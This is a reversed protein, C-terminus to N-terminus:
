STSRSPFDVNLGIGYQDHILFLVCCFVTLCFNYLVFRNGEISFSFRVSLMFKDPWGFFSEFYVIFWTKLRWSGRSVMGRDSISISFLKKGFVSFIVSSTSLFSWFRSATIRCDFDKCLYLVLGILASIMIRPFLVGRLYKLFNLIVEIFSFM